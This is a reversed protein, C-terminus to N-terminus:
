PQTQVDPQRVPHRALAGPMAPVRAPWVRFTLRTFLEDLYLGAFLPPYLWSTRRRTQIVVM